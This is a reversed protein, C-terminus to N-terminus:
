AQLLHWLEIAQRAERIDHARLIQAGQQLAYLHLATTAPLSQEASIQLPRYIMSKRSLGILIPCNLHAFSRLQRLLQYGQAATKSFGLGIDLVIDYVGMQALQDIKQRFYDYVETCIDTYETNEQMTALEGRLHTLVYTLHYDAAVKWLEANGGTVDNLIHAGAEAAQRAVAARFTDVSILAQPFAKAIAKLPEILRQIEEKESVFPAHPRTSVGGIDLIDAGESLMKEAKKLAEEQTKLRSEAYFSDPTLNLIGMVLPRTASLDLSCAGARLVWNALQM